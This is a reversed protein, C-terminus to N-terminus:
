DVKGRLDLGGKDGFRGVIREGGELGLIFIAVYHLDLRRGNGGQSDYWVEM